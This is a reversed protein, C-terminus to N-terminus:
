VEYDVWRDGNRTFVEPTEKTKDSRVVNPTVGRLKKLLPMRPIDWDKTQGRTCIMAARLTPSNGLVDVFDTPTANHSGHHGVKYFTTKQLLERSVPDNVAANWTGWQADGAFLLHEDGWEFMLMLSTGNVSSELSQAVALADLEGMEKMYKIDKPQLSRGGLKEYDKAGLSWFERFPRLPKGGLEEVQAAARLYSHHRPPNMDRIVEPDRSPGLVHIKVGPLLATTIMMRTKGKVPLYRRRPKGAFGDHLTKMANANVLSNTAIAAAAAQLGTLAALKKAAKSQGELIKVAEPDKYDETWPMWVEGVEVDDWGDYDFGSVHDAHRHTAIVIDIRAKGDETVDEIIQKAVERITHPGHGSMHVGCDILVRREGGASDFRLLFSDGFGVNYMRIRIKKKTAMTRDECRGRAM